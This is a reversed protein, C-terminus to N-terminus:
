SVTLEETFFKARQGESDATKALRKLFTEEGVRATLFVSYHAVQEQLCRLGGGLCQIRVYLYLFSSFCTENM